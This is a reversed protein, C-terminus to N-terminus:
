HPRHGALRGPWHPVPRALLLLPPLDDLSSAILYVHFPDRGHGCCSGVTMLGPLENIAQCLLLVEPDLDAPFAWM